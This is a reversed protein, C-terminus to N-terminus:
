LYMHMQRTSCQYGSCDPSLSSFFQPKYINWILHTSSSCTHDICTTQPPTSCGYVCLCFHSLFFISSVCAFSLVPFYVPAGAQVIVTGGEWRSSGPSRGPKDPYTRHFEYIFFSELIFSKPVWTRKELIYGEWDVLYQLDQGRRHVDQLRRITYTPHDDM